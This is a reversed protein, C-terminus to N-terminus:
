VNRQCEIAVKTTRGFIPFPELKAICVYHYFVIGLELLMCRRCKPFFINQTQIKRNQFICLISVFMSGNKSLYVVKTRYLDKTTQIWCAALFFYSSYWKRQLFVCWWDYRAYYVSNRDQRMWKSRSTDREKRWYLVKSVRERFWYMSTKWRTARIADRYEIYRIGM